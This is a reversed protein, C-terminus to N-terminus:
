LVRLSMFLIVKWICKQKRFAILSQRFNFFIAQKETFPYHVGKTNNSRGNFRRTNSKKYVGRNKGVTDM